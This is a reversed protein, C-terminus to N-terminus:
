IVGNRIVEELRQEIRDISARLSWKEVVMNRGNKGLSHAYDKDDRIREIASAMAMEDSEVLLGNMGDIVTERVGGEAVAVVPLGCANAELPVFGFPELRPAYVMMSARNYIDILENDTVM